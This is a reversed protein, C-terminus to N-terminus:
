AADAHRRAEAPPIMVVPLVCPRRAAAIKAYTAEGGSNKSVLLEIRKQRMLREEDEMTFPPRALILERPEHHPLADLGQPADISRILYHHQPAAAFAPVSLRGVTLFVRRPMAGLARVAAEADEVESWRDDAVPTGRSARTLVVLPLLLARAPREACQAGNAGAFPHTADIM